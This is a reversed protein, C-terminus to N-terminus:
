WLEGAELGCHTSAARSVGWSGIYLMLIRNRTERETVPANLDNAVGKIGRKSRKYM